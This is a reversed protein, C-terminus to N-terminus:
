PGEEPVSGHVGTISSGADTRRQTFLSGDPQRVLAGRIALVLGPVKERALDHSTSQVVLGEQLLDKIIRSTLGAGLRTLDLEPVILEETSEDSMDITLHISAKVPVRHVRSDTM